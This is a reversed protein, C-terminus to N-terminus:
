SIPPIPMTDTGYARLFAAVGATVMPQVQRPTLAEAAFPRITSEATTLAVYHLMAQRVDPVRLWRRRGLEDLVSAVEAQVRYPGANHWTTTQDPTLCVARARLQNVMAFHQPHSTRQEVFAHGLVLLASRVDSTCLSEEAARSFDDAVLSASATLVAAFLDNKSRFHHYLTRTSVQAEAAISDMTADGFGVRGFVERAAKEIQARKTPRGGRATPGGANHITEAM